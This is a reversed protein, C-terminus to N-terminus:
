SKRERKIRLIEEGEFGSFWKVLNLGQSYVEGLREVM